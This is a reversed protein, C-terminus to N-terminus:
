QLCRLEWDIAFHTWDAVKCCMVRGRVSVKMISTGKYIELEKAQKPPYNPRDLNAAATRVPLGSFTSHIIGKVNSNCRIVKPKGDVTMLQLKNTEPNIYFDLDLLQSEGGITSAFEKSTPQCLTAVFGSIEEITTDVEQQDKLELADDLRKLYTYKISDPKDFCWFPYSSELVIFRRNNCILTIKCDPGIGYIM